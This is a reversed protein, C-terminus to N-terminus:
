VEEKRRGNESEKVITDVLDGVLMARDAPIDLNNSYIKLEKGKEGRCGYVVYKRGAHWLKQLLNLGGMNPGDLNVLVVTDPNVMAHFLLDLGNEAITVEIGTKRILENSVFAAGSHVVTM